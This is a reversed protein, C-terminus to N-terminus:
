FKKSNEKSNEDHKLVTIVIDSIKKLTEIVGQGRAAISEVEPANYHNLAMNLQSTPEVNELDRKNYQFVLPTKKLDYGEDKLQIKLNRLCEINEDLKLPHSNAVFVIGDLGKLILKGSSKFLMKGPISYLHIRTSFGRIAGISLPLFDFLATSNPTLPLSAWENEKDKTKKYIEQINTTKGSQSPGVYIIKCYIEKSAKNIFSM